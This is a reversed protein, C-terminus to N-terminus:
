YHTEDGGWICYKMSLPNTHAPQLICIIKGAFARNVFHTPCCCLVIVATAAGAAAVGYRCYYATCDLCLPTDYHAVLHGGGYSYHAGNPAYHTAHHLAARLAVTAGRCALCSSCSGPVPGQGANHLGLVLSTLRFVYREDGEEDGRKNTNKMEFAPAHTWSHRERMMKAGTIDGGAQCPPNDPLTM